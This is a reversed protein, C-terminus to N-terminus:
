CLSLDIFFRRQKPGVAWNCLPQKDFHDRDKDTPVLQNRGLRMLQLSACARLPELDGTLQNDYLSLKVLGLCNELPKLGGTLFNNRLQLILLAKCGRLPELGGGLENNSLCLEELAPLQRLEPLPGRLKCGNLRLTRLATSCVAAEGFTAAWTGKLQVGSLHVSLRDEYLLVFRWPCSLPPPLPAPRQVTTTNRLRPLPPLPALRRVGVLPRLRHLQRLLAKSCALGKVAMFRPVGYATFPRATNSCATIVLQLADDPLSTLTTDAGTDARMALFRRLAAMPVVHNRERGQPRDDHLNPFPPPRYFDVFYSHNPVFTVHAHVHVHVHLMRM